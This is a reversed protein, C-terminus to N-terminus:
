YLRFSVCNPQNSPLLPRLKHFITLEPALWRGQHLSAFPAAALRALNPANSALGLKIAFKLFIFDTLGFPLTM